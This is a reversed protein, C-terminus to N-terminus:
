FGKTVLGRVTFRVEPNLDSTTKLVIAGAHLGEAADAKQVVIVKFKKNNSAPVPELKVTVNEDTSVAGVIKVPRDPAIEVTLEKAVEHGRPNSGFWINPESLSFERAVTGTITLVVEQHKPDNSLVSVTKSLKATESYSRSEVALDDTKIELDIQGSKGPEVKAPSPTASTCGCSPVVKIIELATDGKNTFKFQLHLVEGSLIIKNIERTTNDFEIVPAKEQAALPLVGMTLIVCIAPFLPKMRQELDPFLWGGPITHMIGAQNPRNLERAAAIAKIM